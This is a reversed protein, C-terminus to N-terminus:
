VLRSKIKNLAYTAIQGINLKKDLNFDLRFYEGMKVWEDQSYQIKHLQHFAWKGKPYYVNIGNKICIFPVWYDWWAAGMAYISIPFIHLLNKPIYFVDFGAAFIESSNIDTTYDYRSFITIGDPKFEPLSPVIIDSNVILLNDQKLIAYDIIANISILPKGTIHKITKNTTIFEYNDENKILKIEEDNNFSFVKGHKNWSDIAKYQNDNNTHRPSISTCIIM